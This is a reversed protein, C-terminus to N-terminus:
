GNINNRSIVRLEEFWLEATEDPTGNKKNSYHMDYDLHCDFKGTKPYYEMKVQTPPEKKYKKFIDILNRLDQNAHKIYRLQINDSVDYSQGTDNIRHRELLIDNICYFCDYYLFGEENSGYIYIADVNKKDNKVYEFALSVISNTKDEFEEKFSKEKFFGFM